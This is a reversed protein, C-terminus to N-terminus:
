WHIYLTSSEAPADHLQDFGFQIVNASFAVMSSLFLVVGCVVPLGFVVSLLAITVYEIVEKSTTLPEYDASQIFMMTSGLMSLGAVFIMLAISWFVFCLSNKVTTYRGWCVDALFGALPYFLFLLANLGYPLGNILLMVLLYDDDDDDYDIENFIVTYLSPDFFSKFGISIILNLSLILIVAKSSWVCYRHSKFKSRVKSYVRSNVKGLKPRLPTHHNHLEDSNYNESLHLEKENEDCAQEMDAALIQAEIQPLAKATAMM